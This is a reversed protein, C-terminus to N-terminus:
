KNVYSMRSIDSTSEYTSNSHPRSPDYSPTLHKLPVPVFAFRPLMREQTPSLIDTESRSKSPLLNRFFDFVSRISSAWSRLIDEQTGFVLVADIPVLAIIINLAPGHNDTFFFIISMIVAVVTFASFALVRILTAKLHGFVENRLASMHRRVDRCILVELIICALMFVLVLIASIKGPYQNEMNCYMGSDIRRVTEPHKLGIGLSLSFTIIAPIYPVLVLWVYWSRGYGHIDPLPFSARFFMMIQEFNIVIPDPSQLRFSPFKRALRSDTNVRFNQMNLSPVTYILSAQILCLEYPPEWDIPHGVMFIYSACSIIWTVIFNIFIPHRKSIGSSLTITALILLLGGLAILQLSLFLNLLPTSQDEVYRARTLQQHYTPSSNQM